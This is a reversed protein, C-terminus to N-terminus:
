TDKLNGQKNGKNFKWARKHRKDKLHRRTRGEPGRQRDAKNGGPRSRGKTIM